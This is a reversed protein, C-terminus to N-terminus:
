RSFRYSLGVSLLLNHTWESTSSGASLIPTSGAPATTYAAPYELQYLYDAVDIRLQLPGDRELRVGGGFTFAFPTGFDFGGPDGSKGFDSAIGVGGNLSPVLRHWSKQGTLNLSIGVDAITIPWAREGLNRVNEALAPDLVTRDPTTHTLRATFQAPGGIRIEYRVGMAPGGGPAVGAKGESGNYYGAFLSLEQRYPLDRFPSAEPAHGVDQAGLARTTLQAAMFAIALLRM